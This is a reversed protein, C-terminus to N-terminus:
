YDLFEWASHYSGIQEAYDILDNYFPHQAITSSDGVILLKKRARTMAVNMRRTDALFGVVGDENSRTLSIAIIDREQGQLDM